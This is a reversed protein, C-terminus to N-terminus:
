RMSLLQQKKIDILSVQFKAADRALRTQTLLTQTLAEFLCETKRRMETPPSVCGKVESACSQLLSHLVACRVALVPEVFQFDNDLLLLREKWDRLFFLDDEKLAAERTKSAEEMEVLCLLKSLFPYVSYTSELGTSCLFQTM